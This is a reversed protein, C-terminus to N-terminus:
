DAKAGSTKIVKSWKETEIRIQAAFDEPSAQVPDAGEIALREKFDQMTLVKAIQAHVEQVVSEPTGRPALVGYSLTSEYGGLGSEIVTPVNPLQSMRVAGTVAIAKLRGARIQPLAPPIVSFMMQVQGGLLATLGPATSKYPIHTLKIGALYQLLEGALHSGTGSGSSACNIQGPSAKALAIIDKVTELRSDPPVILVLPAAALLSIPVFDTQVDYPIKAYLSPNIALTGTHGLVLTYGDPAAKAAAEMGISGGAGPRNDVVVQQKWSDSLKQALLRAFLDTGGSPAFPVILRVPKTPYAQARAQTIMGGTAIVAICALAAIAKGTVRIM